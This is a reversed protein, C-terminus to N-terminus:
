LYIRIGSLPLFSFCHVYVYRCSQKWVRGRSSAESCLRGIWKTGGRNSVKDSFLIHGV